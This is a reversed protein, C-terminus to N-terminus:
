SGPTNGGSPSTKGPQQSQSGSSKTPSGFAFSIGFEIPGMRPVSQTVATGAPVTGGIAYGPALRTVYGYESGVSLAVRSDRGLIMSLGFIPTTSTSTSGLNSAVGAFIGALLSGSKYLSYHTLAAVKVKSDTSLGSSITDSGQTKPPTLIVSTNHLGSYWLGTSYSVKAGGLLPYDVPLLIPALNQNGANTASASAATDTTGVVSYSIDIECDDAKTQIYDLSKLELDPLPPPPTTAAFPTKVATTAYNVDQNNITIKLISPYWVELITPENYHLHPAPIAATTASPVAGDPKIWKYAVTQGDSALFLVLSIRNQGSVDAATLATASALPIKKAPPPAGGGGAILILASPTASVPPSTVPTGGSVDAVLEYYYTTENTVTPDAYTLTASSLPAITILTYPGGPMTAREIQYDTAGVVSQWVLAVSGNGASAAFAATNAIARVQAL